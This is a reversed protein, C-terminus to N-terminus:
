ISIVPCPSSRLIAYANHRLYGAVGAGSHRGMVLLDANFDQAACSVVKAPDGSKVFVAADTGAETQLEGIRARAEVCLSRVFEEDIYTGAAVGELGLTAYVIGLDAEYEAALGNAWELVGRSREGLDVACIIKHCAIQELPPAQEAHVGTWVPCDLDHLVKATVSGLLHRRFFGLGHTPIMVLDPKWARATEVITDAPDGIVCSRRVTFYKLEGALFEDLKAKRGPLMDEPLSHEGMGVAHLLLIEAEFRGALAEVYRAAGACSDSFDVPFLIKKIPTVHVEGYGRSAAQM